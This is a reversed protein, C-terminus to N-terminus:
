AVHLHGAEVRWVADASTLREARHTVVLATGRWRLLVDDLVASTDADLAADAEDLLLLNPPGLLARALELRSRQGASLGEGREGVRTLEGHPLAALFTDLDLLEYLARVQDDDASPVRYRLNRRVTGRMLPVAPSVIGLVERRAQPSLTTLDCGDLVVRGQVPTVLGAVTELLTSKGAGNPGTVAVVQGPEVVADVPQQSGRVVLGRLELRGRAPAPAPATGRSAASRPRALVEVARQRAVQAAARYEAVRGLDRLPTALFAVVMVATVVAGGGAGTMAATLLLLGAASGAGAETLARVRGMRHARLLMAEVLAQSHRQARARERPAGGLAQVAAVATIRETIEAAVRTRRRRALRNADRLSPGTAALGALTAVSVAAAVLGLGPSLVTLGGLVVVLVPVAVAQRAVGRSVWTRLATLDGTFRLASGGTSRRRLDRSDASLLADVLRMRTEHVYDQGLREATVLEAGRLLAVALGAAVAVAAATAAAPPRAPGTTLAEFGRGLAVASALAAVAQALGNAVLLFLWRWRGNGSVAPLEQGSM